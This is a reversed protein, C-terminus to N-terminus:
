WPRTEHKAVVSELLMGLAESYTAARDTERYKSNAIRIMIELFEHRFLTNGTGKAPAASKAKDKDRAKTAVFLLDVTARPITDDLIDVAGCFTVFELWGIHPYNDSSILNIFIHKLQEFHRQILLTCQRFDDPDRVV